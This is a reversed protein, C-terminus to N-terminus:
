TSPSKAAGNDGFAAALKAFGPLSEPRWTIDSIFPLLSRIDTYTDRAKVLLDYFEDITKPVEAGLEAMMDCRYYIPNAM